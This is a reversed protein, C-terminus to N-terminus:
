EKSRCKFNIEKLGEDINMIKSAKCKANDIKPTLNSLNDEFNEIWFSGDLGTFYKKGNIFFYGETYPENDLFITGTITKIKNLNIKYGQGSKLTVKKSAFKNSTKTTWYPPIIRLNNDEIIFSESPYITKGLACELTNTYVCGISGSIGLENSNTNNQKQLNIWFDNKFRGQLYLKYNNAQKNSEIIGRGGIQRDKLVPLNFDLINSDTTDSSIHSTLLSSYRNKFEFNWKLQFLLKYNNNTLDKNYNVLFSYKNFNKSYSVNYFENDNKHYNISINGFREFNLGLTSRLDEKKLAKFISFFYNSGTYNYNIAIDKTKDVEIGFQGFKSLYINNLSINDKDFSLGTTLSKTIGRKYYGTLVRQGSNKDKGLSIQFEDTKEKLINRSFLFPVLIERQKGFSDTVIIKINNSTYLLPLDKLNYIGTDLSFKQILRNNDYIEVKSKSTIILEYNFRKTNNVIAKNTGFQVGDLTYGNIFYSNNTAYIKGIKLYKNNFEKLVYYNQLKNKNNIFSDQLYLLTDKYFLGSGLNLAYDQNKVISYNLFISKSDIFDYDNNKSFSITKKKLCSKKPIIFLKSNKL